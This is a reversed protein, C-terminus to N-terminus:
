VVFSSVGEESRVEQWRDRGGSLNVVEYGDENVTRVKQKNCSLKNDTCGCPWNDALLITLLRM